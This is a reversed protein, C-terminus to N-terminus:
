SSIISYDTSALFYNRNAAYYVYQLERAAGDAGYLLKESLLLPARPPLGLVATTSEDGSIAEVATTSRQLAVGFHRRFASPLDDGAVMVFPIRPRVEPAWYLTELCFPVDRTRILYEAVRVSSDAPLQLQERIVPSGPVLGSFLQEVEFEDKTGQPVGIEIGDFFTGAHTGVGPARSVIGEEALQGLADRVANRTTAFQSMLATESLLEGPAILRKRIATRMLAYVRRSQNQKAFASNRASRVRMFEARDVSRSDSM